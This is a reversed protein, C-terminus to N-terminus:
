GGKSDDIAEFFDEEVRAEWTQVLFTAAAGAMNAALQAHRASPKAPRRGHGHADDIKKQLSGLGEVVNAVGALIRKFAAEAYQMPALNLQEATMKMLLPLDFSESYTVGREELIHKCVGELLARASTIAGEPDAHRRALAKDWVALVGEADFSQLTDVAVHLPAINATSGIHDFLPAMTNRIHQRRPERRPDFDKMYPWLHGLDRHRTVYTPLLPKLVPDHMMSRRLEIYTADDEPGRHGECAKLLVAQLLRVRDEIDEPILQSSDIGDSM